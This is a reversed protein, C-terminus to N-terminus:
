PRSAGPGPSSAIRRAFGLDLDLTRLSGRGAPARPVFFRKGDPSVGYVHIGGANSVRDFLREPRGASFGNRTEVAVRFVALFVVSFRGRSFFDAHMEEDSDADLGCWVRWVMAPEVYGHRVAWATARPLKHGPVRLFRAGAKRLQWVEDGLRAIEAWEDPHESVSLEGGEQSFERSTRGGPM